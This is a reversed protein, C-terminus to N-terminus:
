LFFPPFLLQISGVYLDGTQLVGSGFDEIYAASVNRGDISYITKTLYWVGLMRQIPLKWWGSRHFDWFIGVCYQMTHFTVVIDFNPGSIPWNTSFLEDEKKVFTVNTLIHLKGTRGLELSWDPELNSTQREWWGRGKTKIISSIIIIIICVPLFCSSFVGLSLLYCFVGLNYYFVHHPSIM